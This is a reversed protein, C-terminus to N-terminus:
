SATIFRSRLSDSVWRGASSMKDLKFPFIDEREADLTGAMCIKEQTKMFLKRVQGPSSFFLLISKSQM